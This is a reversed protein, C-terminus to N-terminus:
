DAGNDTGKRIDKVVLQLKRVGNYENIGLEGAVDIVSGRELMGAFDAARRFLVCDVYCKDGNEVTFRVHQGDRGMFRLSIVRGRCISFLPRPNGEGYPELLALEEAFELSKEESSLEKEIYIKETLLDPDEAVRKEVAHQMRDRFEPVKDPYLCFGCAGAHGGFRAFLDDCEKLMDYLNIGPICRGTGKLMGSEDPTVICVPRYFEEKFNGAVIGTVGEHADKVYIVPCLDGCPEAKMAEYCLNRTKEQEAKRNQNNLIMNLALENLDLGDKGDSSLLAVGMRASGMRGLANINPALMYAIQDSEFRKQNFELAKLLAALGPRQMRTIMELGYKVFSRNEDVLPVVDAVTAIAVLDLLKNLDTRTFRTDGEAELMRQIGQAIKFSVGCGCLQKFPYECDERKPNVFLCDPVSEPCINHHDSVIIDMGLEKAYAVEDKSTSGCDVTIILDVNQKALYAIGTKNLGYGDVFRSPIYFCVKETIRELVTKLVTTATIGDADYDGYICISEKNRCAELIRECVKSLDKLLFPDYTLQPKPSLFDEIKDESIGRKSLIGLLASSIGEPGKAPTNNQNLYVWKAM